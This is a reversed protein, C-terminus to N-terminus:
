SEGMTLRTVTDVTLFNSLDTALSDIEAATFGSSPTVISVTVTATKRVVVGGVTVDKQLVRSVSPRLPDSKSAGRVVFSDDPDGFSLTSKTYRGDARPAFNVTQSTITGFPM